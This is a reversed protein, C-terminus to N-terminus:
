CMRGSLDSVWLAKHLFFTADHRSMSFCGEKKPKHERHSWTPVLSVTTCSSLYLLSSTETISLLEDQGTYCGSCTWGTSFDMGNIVMYVIVATHPALLLVSHSLIGVNWPRSLTNWAPYLLLDDDWIVMNLEFGGRVRHSRWGLWSLPPPLNWAFSCLNGSHWMLM